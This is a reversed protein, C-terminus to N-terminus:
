FTARLGIGYSKVQPLAVYELGQFNSAGGINTEPDFNPYKTILFLNRGTLTLSVNSLVKTKSVVSTPLSYALSLERLRVFDTKFVSAEDIGDNVLQWYTQDRKIAIDNSVYTPNGQADTGSEKVGPFIYDSTRDETAKDMGYLRALRTNGAYAQGGRRVDVQATLTIGKFTFNNTVGVEFKPQVQGIVGLQEDAQPYGDADVVIQGNSNRLYRTGFIVPYANGAQARINPETFGGLFINDVGEALELVKNRYATFNATLNWNFGNDTRVPTIGLVLENGLTRLKGANVYRSTYGISPASPAAFIQNNANQIFFTYDFTLRNNFFRLDAGFETTSVNVPKLQNTYLVDSLSLATLGQFPFTIGDSLYGSGAGGRVFRPQTLYTADPAQATEAYSARLKAFTVVNQPVSVAETIVFGLGVSPYFITRNGNPLNSIFDERGSANLYIMEKWSAALNGYFGVTRKRTIYETTTQTTTNDINQLGGITVGQGLMNQYRNRIDYFENGLLVNLNIDDTLDKNFVLNANSNLQNQTVTYDRVQGGSPVATRGGTNGSGLDYFEKGETTYFDEGVRYNLTLWNTFKYSANASGFMRNTQESFSNHALAWRPNDFSGRYNIQQNPNNPDEFPIGWLDYSRPAYYTTFLPNSLNSGNPLKSVQLNTYNATAGITFKDSVKFDGGVKASYRDMGTTPIVGIQKTYGLGVGYNGFDGSGTLDVANNITHGTRFFPEVNDYVRGPVIAKGGKDLVAPDLETIRPGWSTSTNQNFIGNSGQAWTNQLKPFRSAYDLTYDSTYSLQAKKGVGKGRKTTIVVVGNAARNGYLAAAAGGKLVSISEIDSPNIDLARSSYDTDGVGGGFDAQSEIPLGDVVYLPQNNGTLFRSGRITILSSSGPMGSSQRVIVGAVKGQLANTVNPQAVKTIQEGQVEQVTYTLAKTEREIGFATVVVENLQKTDPALAVNIQNEEGFAREIQIYGISSFVLTGASQTVSLTYTGDANTSVGNSTGKLLVTVGPLGDGTQRDTVRGSISRSQASAYQLLTIMLLLSMLLTKKM